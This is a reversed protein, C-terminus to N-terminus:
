QKTYLFVGEGGFRVQCIPLGQNALKKKSPHRLFAFKCEWAPRWSAKIRTRAWRPFQNRLKKCVEATHTGIRLRYEWQLPTANEKFRTRACRPLCVKQISQGLTPFCNQLKAVGRCRSPWKRLPPRLNPLGTKNNKWLQRLFAFKCACAPRWSSKKQTRAWRPFQNQM